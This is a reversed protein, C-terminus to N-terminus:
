NCGREFLCLKSAEVSPIAMAYERRARHLSGRYYWIQDRVNIKQTTDGCYNKISLKGEIVVVFSYILPLNQRFGGSFIMHFHPSYKLYQSGDPFFWLREVNQPEWILDPSVSVIIAAM